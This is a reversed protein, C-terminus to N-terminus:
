PMPENRLPGAFALTMDFQQGHVMGQAVFGTYQGVACVRMGSRMNTELRQGVANPNWAWMDMSTGVLVDEGGITLESLYGIGPGAANTTGRQACWFDHGLLDAADLVKEFRIATATGWTIPCSMCFVISSITKESYAPAVRLAPRESQAAAAQSVALSGAGLLGASGFLRRGFRNSFLSM